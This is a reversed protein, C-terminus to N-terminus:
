DRHIDKVILIQAQQDTMSPHSKIEFRWDQRAAKIEDQYTKGKPLIACGGDALHRQLYPFLESLAALARATVVDANQPPVDEVREALIEVQLGLERAATRLFTSKRQDSEIFTFKTVPSKELAIVAMVIGPFGGGSGIDLWTKPAYNAFQFLQASDVVHRNWIDPITSKSVLNIHPNWKEVLASFQELKEFTERSVDPIPLKNPTLTGAGQSKPTKAM